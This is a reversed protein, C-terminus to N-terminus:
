KKFERIVLRYFDIVGDIQNEYTFLYKSFDISEKQKLLAPLGSIIEEVDNFCFGVPNKEFFRRYSKIDSTIVPLGAALYEYLKNAITTDLFEKYSGSINSFPIIGVDFQTMMRILDKPSVPKYIHLRPFYEALKVYSLNALPYNTPFVHVHINEHNSLHAFLETFDRIGTTDLGGEYVIHLGRDKESLRSLFEGADPVDDKSCYNGVVFVPKDKLGYMEKAADAAEHTTYICGAAGEQALAELISNEVKNSASALFLSLLDHTDHIVPKGSRIAGLTLIDPENHCHIIDFKKCLEVLHSPNEIKISDEYVDDSLKYRKSLKDHTYALTVPYGRRRLADAYKYNRICPTEQIFLIKLPKEDVSSISSGQKADNLVDAGIKASSVMQVPPENQQVFTGEIENIYQRAKNHEPNLTLCMKFHELAKEREGNIILIEGLHFYVGPMLKSEVGPRQLKEFYERAEEWKEMKKLVSAFRYINADTLEQDTYELIELRENKNM